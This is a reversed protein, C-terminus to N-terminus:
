RSARVRAQEILKPALGLFLIVFILEAALTLGIALARQRPTPRRWDNSPRSFTLRM